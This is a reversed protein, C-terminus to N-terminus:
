NIVEMLKTEEIYEKVKWVDKYTNYIHDQAEAEFSFKTAKNKDRTWKTCTPCSKAYVEEGYNDKTIVFKQKPFKYDLCKGLFNKFEQSKRLDERAKGQEEPENWVNWSFKQYEDGYVYRLVKMAKTYKNSGGQFNGEEYTKLLEIEVARLGEEVLIKTFFPNEWESPSATDNNSHSKVFVKGDRIRIHTIKEYSM